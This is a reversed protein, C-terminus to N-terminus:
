SEKLKTNRKVKGIIYISDSLSVNSPSHVKPRTDGSILCLVIHRNTKVKFKSFYELAEHYTPLTHWGSDYTTKQTGDKVNLRKQAKVWQKSPVTRSGNNAHFLTKFDGQPTVEMIKYAQQQEVILNM